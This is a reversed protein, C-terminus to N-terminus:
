VRGKGRDRELSVVKSTLSTEDELTESHEPQQSPQSSGIPGTGGGCSAGTGTQGPGPSSYSLRFLVAMKVM